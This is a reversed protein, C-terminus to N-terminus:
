GRSDSAVAGAKRPPVDRGHLGKVVKVTIPDGTPAKAAWPKDLGGAPVLTCFSFPVGFPKQQKLCLKDSKIQWRGSTAELRRGTATYSGDRQLWLEGQRGDPYTSVITSGFTQELLAAKDASLPQDAGAPTASVGLVVVMAACAVKVSRIM